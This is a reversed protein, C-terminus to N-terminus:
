APWTTARAGPGPGAPLGHEHGQGAPQHGARRHGEAPRRRHRRHRQGQAGRLRQRRLPRGRDDEERQGVRRRRQGHLRGASQGTLIMGALFGGLAFPGLLFGVLIPACCPWCGPASSNRRRRTPASRWWAATTPSRRAARPDGQGPVAPPMGQRHLVGRPRRRPDADLQLPVAGHRRDPLRDAGDPQGGDAPRRPLQIAIGTMMGLKDESGVAIVAIFSAFLSVAAIVASGIAIGKTEAKTTNGVADLDALVQRARKYSGPQAKEMEDRDYGMEGIGNANDAVPGFVDMSITNGTLTLMGIGTM